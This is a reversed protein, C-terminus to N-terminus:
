TTSDAYLNKLRRLTRARGVVDSGGGEGEGEGEGEGTDAHMGQAFVPVLLRLIYTCCM